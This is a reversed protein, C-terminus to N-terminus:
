PHALLGRARRELILARVRQQDSPPWMEELAQWAQSDRGSYLYNLVITLVAKVTPAQDIFMKQSYVSRRFKDLSDATLESQAKAIQEDYEKQYEPSVDILNSGQLRFTLEPIVANEHPLLFLDFAGEGTRVEILGDDRRRFTLPVQNHLERVVQPKKGLSVIWYTYCCGQGGSFGDFVVDPVGDGNVDAGSVQDLSMAWERAVTQRGGRPAAVTGRCRYDSTRPGPLMQIVYGGIRHVRQYNKSVPCEFKPDAHASACLFFVCLFFQVAFLLYRQSGSM